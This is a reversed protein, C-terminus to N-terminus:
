PERMRATMARCLEIRNGIGLKRYIRKLHSRVTSEKIGLREATESGSEGQSLLLAVDLERPTLLEAIASHATTSQVHPQGEAIITMLITSGMRIPDALCRVVLQEGLRLVARCNEPVPLEALQPRNGMQRAFASLTQMPTPQTGGVRSRRVRTPHASLRRTAENNLWLVQGAANFVVTPTPGLALVGLIAVLVGDAEFPLEPAVVTLRPSERTIRSAPQADPFREAPVTEQM